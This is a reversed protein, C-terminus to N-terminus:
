SGRYTSYAFPSLLLPVHYHGADAEAAFSVTVEPFFTEQGRSAFYDGVAFRLRYTGTELEEPGLDGIRGDQDTVGSAIVPGAEGDSGVGRLEVAIGGAPLGAANDLVHTTIFSM